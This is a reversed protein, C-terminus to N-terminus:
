GLLNACLLVKRHLGQLLVNHQLVVIHLAGHHFLSDQGEARHVGEECVEMGCELGRDTRTENWIGFEPKMGCGLDCDTRTENWMGFELKMGCGLRRDTRTENQIWAVQKDGVKNLSILM